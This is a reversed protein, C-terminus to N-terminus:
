RNQCNREEIFRKFVWPLAMSSLFSTMSLFTIIHILVSKIEGIKIEYEIFNFVEDNCIDKISFFIFILILVLLYLVFLSSFRAFRTEFNYNRVYRRSSSDNSQSLALEGTMTIIIFLFGSLISFTNVILNLANESKSVFPSLLWSSTFSIFSVFLFFIIFKRDLM